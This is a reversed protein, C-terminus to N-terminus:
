TGNNAQVILPVRDRATSDEVLGIAATNFNQFVSNRFALFVTTNGPPPWEPCHLLTNQGNCYLETLPRMILIDPAIPAARVRTLRIGLVDLRLVSDAVSDRGDTLPTSPLEFAEPARDGTDRPV